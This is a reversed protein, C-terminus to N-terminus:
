RVLEARLDEFWVNNFGQGRKNYIEIFTEKSYIDMNNGRFFKDAEEVSFRELRVGKVM